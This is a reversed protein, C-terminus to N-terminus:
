GSQRTRTDAQGKELNTRDDRTRDQWEQLTLCVKKAGLRSGIQEVKRCVVRNLDTAETPPVDKATVPQAAPTQATAPSAALVLAILLASTVCAIRHM